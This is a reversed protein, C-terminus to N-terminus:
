FNNYDFLDAIFTEFVNIRPVTHSTNWMADSVRRVKSQSPLLLQLGLWRQLLLVSEADCVVVHTWTDHFVSISSDYKTSQM